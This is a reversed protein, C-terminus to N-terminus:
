GSRPAPPAPAGQAGPGDGPPRAFRGVTTLLEALRFPKALVGDAALATAQAAADRVATFVVVPAHPGPTRRYADLFAVGDLGPMVLDLLILDPPRRGFPGPAGLATLGATGEPAAVVAYGALTLATFTADRVLDDDEILLVRGAAPAGMLGELSALAGALLRAPGAGAM